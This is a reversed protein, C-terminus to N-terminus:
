LKVKLNHKELLFDFFSIADTKNRLNFIPINYHVAIRMAQGTGGSIKGDETYCLVFDVPTKMDQGFIQMSNRAMLKKVSDSLRDWAPHFQEAIMFASHPQTFLPSPNDNFGKWPLYIEKKDAYYEFYSDAGEAGGSRLTYDLENLSSMLCRIIEKYEVPTSRSGIGAFYPM